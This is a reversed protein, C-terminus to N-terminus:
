QERLGPLYYFYTTEPVRENREKGAADTVKRYETAAVLLIRGDPLACRLAGEVQCPTEWPPSVLEAQSDGKNYSFIGSYGWMVFDADYGKAVVDFSITDQPVIEMFIDELTGEQPNIGAIGLRHERNFLATYVKKDGGIGLGCVPGAYYEGDDIRSILNGDRDLILIIAADEFGSGRLYLYGEEDVAMHWIQGTSKEGEPGGVHFVADSRFPALDIERLFNGDQDLIWLGNEWSKDTQQQMLGLYVLGDQDQCLATVITERDFDDFFVASDSSGIEMWHVTNRGNLFLCDNGSAVSTISLDGTYAITLEQGPDGSAFREKEADTSEPPPEVSAAEQPFEAEGAAIMENMKQLSYDRKYRFDVIQLLEEDSMEEEPFFFTSTSGLFGVNRGKYEQATDLMVLEGRPFRGQQEYDASLSEMRSLESETLPRNYNDASLKSTYLQAFYEELKQQNMDEMRQRWASVAATATISFLMTMAAALILARKLKVPGGTRRGPLGSSGRKENKQKRKIQNLSGEVRHGLSDPLVIQERDAMEFLKREWQSSM